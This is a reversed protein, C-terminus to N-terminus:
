LEPDHHWFPWALIREQPRENHSKQKCGGWLVYTVLSEEPAEKIFSNIGRMLARGKHGLYRGFAGGELVMMNRPYSKLMIFKPSVCVNLGYLCWLLVMSFNQFGIFHEIQQLVQKWPVYWMELYTNRQLWGPPEKYVKPELKLPHFERTKM